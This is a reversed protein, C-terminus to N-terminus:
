HRKTSIILAGLLILFLGSAFIWRYPVGSVDRNIANWVVGMTPNYRDLFAFSGVVAFLGAAILTTPYRYLRRGLQFIPPEPLIWGCTQCKLFETISHPRVNNFKRCDPNQCRVQSAQWFRMMTGGGM